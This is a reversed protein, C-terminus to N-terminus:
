ISFSLQRYRALGRGLLPVLVPFLQCVASLDMRAPAFHNKGATPSKGNGGYILKFIPIIGARPVCFEGFYHKCGVIPRSCKIARLKLINIALIQSSVPLRGIFPLMMQREPLALFDPPIPVCMVAM